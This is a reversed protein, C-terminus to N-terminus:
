YILFKSKKLLVNPPLIEIKLLFSSLKKEHALHQIGRRSCMIFDPRIADGNNPEVVLYDEEIRIGICFKLNKSDFDKQENM